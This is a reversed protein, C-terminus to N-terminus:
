VVKLVAVLGVLIFLLGIMGYAIQYERKRLFIYFIPLNILAGISILGGLKRQVYLITVSDLFNGESFYITFLNMGILTAVLAIVFGIFIEKNRM